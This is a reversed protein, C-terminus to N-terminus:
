RAILIVRRTDQDPRWKYLRDVMHNVQTLALDFSVAGARLDFVVNLCVLWPALLQDISDIAAEIV